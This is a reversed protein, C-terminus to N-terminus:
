KERIISSLNPKNTQLNKNKHNLAQEREVNPFCLNPM